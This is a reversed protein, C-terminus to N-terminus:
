RNIATLVWALAVLGGLALGVVRVVTRRSPWRGSALGRAGRTQREIESAQSDALVSMASYSNREFGGPNGTM